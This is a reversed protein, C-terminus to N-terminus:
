DAERQRVEITRVVHDAHVVYTAVLYERAKDFPPEAGYLPVILNGDRDKHSEITEGREIAAAFNTIGIVKGDPSVVAWLELGSPNCRSREM